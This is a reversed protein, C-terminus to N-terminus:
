RRNEKGNACLLLWVVMSKLIAEGVLEEAKKLVARHM